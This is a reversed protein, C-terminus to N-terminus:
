LWSPEALSWRGHFAENVCSLSTYFLCLLPFDLCPVVIASPIDGAMCSQARPITGRGFNIRRSWIGVLEDSSMLKLLAWIKTESIEICQIKLTQRFRGGEMWEIEQNKNLVFCVVNIFNTWRDVTKLSVIPYKPWFRTFGFIHRTWIPEMGRHGNRNEMETETIWCWESLAVKPQRKKLKQIVVLSSTQM